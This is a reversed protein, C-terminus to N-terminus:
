FARVGSVDLLVLLGSTGAALLVTEVEVGWGLEPAATGWFVFSGAASLLVPGEPEALEM